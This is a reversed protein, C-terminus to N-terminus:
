SGPHIGSTPSDLLADVAVSPQARRIARVFAAKDKPSVLVSEGKTLVEIRDLSLAPASQSDRSARLRTVSTLLITRRLLLCRVLLVDGSIVYYTSFYNWVMLGLPITLFPMIWWRASHVIPVAGMGSIVLVAAMLGFYWWDVKSKFRQGQRDV